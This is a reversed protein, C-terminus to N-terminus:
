KLTRYIHLGTNSLFFHVRKKYTPVEFCPAISIAGVTGTCYLRCMSCKGGLTLIKRELTSCETCSVVM